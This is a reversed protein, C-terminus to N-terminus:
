GQKIKFHWTISTSTQNVPVLASVVGKLLLTDDFTTVWDAHSLTAMLDLSLELGKQSQADDRKPVPYGDAIVPNYVM